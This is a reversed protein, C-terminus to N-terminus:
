LWRRLDFSLASGRMVRRNRFSSRLYKNGSLEHRKVIEARKVEELFLARKKIFFDNHCEMRFVWNSLSGYSKKKKFVRPKM